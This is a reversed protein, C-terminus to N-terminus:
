GAGSGSGIPIADASKWGLNLCEDTRRHEWNGCRGSMLVGVKLRKPLVALARCRDRDGLTASAFEVTVVAGVTALPSM